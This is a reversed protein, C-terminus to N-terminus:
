EEPMLVANIVHVVGNSGSMDTQDVTAKDGNADTIVVKDGDMSASLQDGNVTSIQYEGNNDKIAQMIDSATYEGPVVHYTLISNLREKGEPTLLENLVDGPLKSFANNTPALVTFPGDSKLTEVLGAHELAGRLTSFDDKAIVVDAVTEEGTGSNSNSNPMAEETSRETTEMGNMEDSNENKKNSDCSVLGMAIVACSLFLKKM